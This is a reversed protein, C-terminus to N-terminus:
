KLVKISFGAAQQLFQTTRSQIFGLSLFKVNSLQGSHFITIQVLGTHVSASHVSSHM